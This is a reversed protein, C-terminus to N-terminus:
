ESLAEGVQRAANLIFKEASRAQDERYTILNLCARPHSNPIPAAVAYAGLEIEGSSTAYGRERARTVEVPEEAVQPGAALLAYGAAGRNIPTRMGAKFAIHHTATTPEVLEISVAEAGEAIFLSVTCGVENAVERMAPIALERLTPLYADALTALRSGGRYRGDTSQAVFGFDALTQLLRYAISRHVGLEVALQQSTMGDPSDVVALLARLGRALTQSGVQPRGTQEAM